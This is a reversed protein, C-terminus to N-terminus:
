EPNCVPVSSILPLINKERMKDDGMEGRLRLKPEPQKFVLAIKLYFQMLCM